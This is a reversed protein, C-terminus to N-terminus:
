TSGKKKQVQIFFDGSREVPFTAPPIKPCAGPPRLAFARLRGVNHAFGSGLSASHGIRHVLAPRRSRRVAPAPSNGRNAPGPRRGAGIPYNARRGDRSCLGRRPAM